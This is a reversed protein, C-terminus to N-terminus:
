YTLRLWEEKAAVRQKMRQLDDDEFEYQLQNLPGRDAARSIRDEDGAESAIIDDRPRAM